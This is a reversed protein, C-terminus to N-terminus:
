RGGGSQSAGLGVSGCHGAGSRRWWGIAGRCDPQLASGGEARRGALGRSPMPPLPLAGRGIPPCPRNSLPLAYRPRHLRTPAAAPAAPPPTASDPRAQLHPRRHEPLGKGVARRRRRSPKGGEREANHPGRPRPADAPRGTAAGRGPRDPASRDAASREAGAEPEGHGGLRRRETQKRCCAQM